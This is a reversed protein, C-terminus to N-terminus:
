AQELAEALGAAMWNRRGEEHADVTRAAAVVLELYPNIVALVQTSAEADRCHEPDSAVLLARCASPRDEYVTCAGDAGLFVCDAESRPKGVFEGPTSWTRQLALRGRDPQATGERVRDALLAAEDRTLDVRIRCCHSCGRQCRIARGVEPKLAAFTAAAAEVRRHVERARGSGAPLSQLASAERSVAELVRQRAVETDLSALFFQLAKTLVPTM